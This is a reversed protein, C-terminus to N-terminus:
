VKTKKIKGGTKGGFRGLKKNVQRVIEIDGAQYRMSSKHDEHGLREMTTRVSAGQQSYWTGVSHRAMHPSFTIGIGRCMPLLWKYVGWRTKWPFVAQEPLGKPYASKLAKLAEPDLAFIKWTKSKSILLSFTKEKQHIDLGKVSLAESIRNGHKFLWICLAQKILPKDKQKEAEAIIQKAVEITVARTKPKEEKFKKFRVWSCHGADAAHHM